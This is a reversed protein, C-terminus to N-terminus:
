CSCCPPNTPAKAALRALLDEHSDDAKLSNCPQCLLQLNALEHGGGKSQPVIHDVTMQEFCFRRKCGKCGGEQIGFLYNKHVAYRTNKSVAGGEDSEEVPLPAAAVEGAVDMTFKWKDLIETHILTTLIRANEEFGEHFDNIVEKLWEVDREVLGQLWGSEPSDWVDQPFSYQLELLHQIEDLRNADSPLCSKKDITAYESPGNEKIRDPLKWRLTQPNKDVRIRYLVGIFGSVNTQQEPQAGDLILNPICDEEILDRMADRILTKPDKGLYTEDLQQRCIDRKTDHNANFFERLTMSESFLTGYRDNGNRKPPSNWHANRAGQRWDM